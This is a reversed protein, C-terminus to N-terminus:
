RGKSPGLRPNGSPLPFHIPQVKEEEERDHNALESELYSLNRHRELYTM